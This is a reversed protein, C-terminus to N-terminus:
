PMAVHLRRGPARELEPGLARRAAATLIVLTVDEGLAEWAARVAAPEEAAAVRVGAFAFGRVREREGIVAIASV